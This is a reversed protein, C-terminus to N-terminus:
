EVTDDFGVDEVVVDAGDGEVVGVFGGLGDLGDHAAVVAGVGFATGEAEQLAQPSRGAPAL